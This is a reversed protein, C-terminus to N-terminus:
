GALLRISRYVDVLSNSDWACELSTCNPFAEVLQNALQPSHCPNDVDQLQKALNLHHASRQCLKRLQSCTAAVAGATGQEVLKPLLYATLVDDNLLTICQLFPPPVGAADAAEAPAAQV